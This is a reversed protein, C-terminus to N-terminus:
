QKRNDHNTADNGAYECWVSAEATSHSICKNYGNKIIFVIERGSKGFHQDIAADGGRDDHNDGAGTRKPSPNDGDFLPPKVKPCKQFM